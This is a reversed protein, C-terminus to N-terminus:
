GRLVESEEVLGSELLRKLTGYLTGPGLRVGRLEAIDEMIAYGHKPGGSLSVLILLGPESFRGLAALDASM